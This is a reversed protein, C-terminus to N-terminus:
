KALTAVLRWVLHPSMPRAQTRNFTDVLDDFRRTYPLRDRKGIDTGLMERLHMRNEPSVEPAPSRAEGLKPLKGGKRLNLLQRWADDRTPLPEPLGTTCARYLSEFHPTYPLDDATRGIKQYEAILKERSIKVITSVGAFLSGPPKADEVVEASGGTRDIILLVTGFPDKITARWGRSAPTPPSVFTLNLDARRAHMERVNDVLYYTAEAPLDADTHLVLETDSDAFALSALRSDQKLLRMGLTQTYFHVAGSLSPVRILIRDIRKFM